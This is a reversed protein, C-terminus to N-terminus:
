GISGGPRRALAIRIGNVIAGIRVAVLARHASYYEIVMGSLLASLKPDRAYSEPSTFAGLDLLAGGSLGKPAFTNVRAGDGTFAHREFRLFLHEAGTLGLKSVLEPMEEADASYMSVRTSISRTGHDVAKKNRSVPYGLATYLRGASPEQNHSIRSADLFDVAGLADVGHVPPQWIATDFHDSARGEELKPTVMVVGGLIPVPSTGPLGAVYLSHDASQDLIHAATVVIPMGDINLLLCSGIHEPRPNSASNRYVPRVSARFDREAQLTFRDRPDLPEIKRGGAPQLEHAAVVRHHDGSVTLSHTKWSM